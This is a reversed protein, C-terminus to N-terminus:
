IISEMDADFVIYWEGSSDLNYRDTGIFYTKLYMDRFYDAAILTETDTGGRYEAEIIPDSQDGYDSGKRRLVAKLAWWYPGYDLYRRPDKTLRQVIIGCGFGLLDSTGRNAQLSQTKDRAMQRIVAADFKLQTYM